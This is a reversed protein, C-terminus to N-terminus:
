KNRGTKDFVTCAIERFTRSRDNQFKGPNNITHLLPTSHIITDNRMFSKLLYHKEHIDGLINSIPFNKGYFVYLFGSIVKGYTVKFKVKSRNELTLHGFHSKKGCYQM